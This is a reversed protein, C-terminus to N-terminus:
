ARPHRDHHIAKKNKLRTKLLVFEKKLADYEQKVGSKRLAIKVLENHTKRSM